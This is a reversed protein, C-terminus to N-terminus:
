RFISKQFFTNRVPIIPSLSIVKDSISCCPSVIACFSPLSVEINYNNNEHHFLPEDINPTSAVFGRIADGFRFNNDISDQYFGNNKMKIFNM